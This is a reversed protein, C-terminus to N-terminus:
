KENKAEKLLKLYNLYRKEPIKKGINLKVNCFEEPENEHLCWKFKCLKSLERFIKFSKSLENKNMQIDLSSFGPTDILSGNKFDYIKTIRTTHKGRNANKSIEKTELNLNLLKNIITTKGVGSQGMFSCTNHNFIPTFLEVLDDKKYDIQYIKYNMEKYMEIENSSGLDNKTVLIIPVINKSEILALYKDVLFSQFDPNKVSMVVIIHDINAVKPRIFYNKREYIKKIFGDLDFEVYDGVLPNIDNYRFSGKANLEYFKNDAKVNFKGAIISYIRGKM